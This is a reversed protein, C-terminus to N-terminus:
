TLLHKYKKPFKSIFIAMTHLITFWNCFGGAMAEQLLFFHIYIQYSIKNWQDKPPRFFDIFYKFIILTIFSQM